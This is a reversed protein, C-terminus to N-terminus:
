VGGVLGGGLWLLFFVVVFDRRLLIGEADGLSGLLGGGEGEAARGGAVVGGACDVGEEGAAATGAM